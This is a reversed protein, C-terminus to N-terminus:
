LKGQGTYDIKDKKGSILDSVDKALQDVTEQKLEMFKVENGYLKM